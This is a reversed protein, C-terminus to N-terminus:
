ELSDLEPSPEALMKKAKETNCANALATTLALLLKQTTLCQHRISKASKSAGLSEKSKVKHLPNGRMQQQVRRWDFRAVAIHTM